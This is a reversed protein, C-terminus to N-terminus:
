KDKRRELVIQKKGNGDTLARVGEWGDALKKEIESMKKLDVMQTDRELDGGEDLVEERWVLVFKKNADIEEGDPVIKEVGRLVFGSKFLSGMSKISDLNQALVESKISKCGRAKGIELGRNVLEGALGKGKYGEAVALMGLYGQEGEGENSNIEVRVSGVVIGDKKTALYVENGEELDRKKHSAWDRELYKDDDIEDESLGGFVLGNAERFLHFFSQLDEVSTIEQPPALQEREKLRLKESM